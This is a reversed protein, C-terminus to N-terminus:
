AVQSITGEGRKCECPANNNATCIRALDGNLRRYSTRGPDLYADSEVDNLRIDLPRARYAFGMGDGIYVSPRVWCLRAPDFTRGVSIVRVMM